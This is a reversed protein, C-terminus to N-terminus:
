KSNLYLIASYSQQYLITNIPSGPTPLDFMQRLYMFFSKLLSELVVMPTSNQALIMLVSSLLFIRAWIQSVAPSSFYLATVCAQKRPATPARNIQSIVSMFVNSCTGSQSCRNCSLAPSSKITISTPLLHSRCSYLSTDVYYPVSNAIYFPSANM